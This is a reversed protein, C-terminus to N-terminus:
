YPHALPKGRKHGLAYEVKFTVTAFGDVGGATARKSLDDLLNTSIFFYSGELTFYLSESVRVTTGLGVPVVGALGPYGGQVEPPISVLNDFPGQTLEPDYLMGGVGAQVFVQMPSSQYNLGRYMSKDAFLNYRLYAVLLQNTSQLHLNRDPKQDNAQLKFYSFDAGFTVRPSLAQTLGLGLGARLTNDKLRTTVDGRYYAVNLGVNLRLPPRSYPKNAAYFRRPPRYGPPAAYAASLSAGLLTTLLLSRM